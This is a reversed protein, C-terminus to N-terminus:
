VPSVSVTDPLNTLRTLLSKLPHYVTYPSEGFAPLLHSITALSGGPLTISIGAFETIGYLSVILANSGDTYWMCVCSLTALMPGPRPGPCVTTTVPLGITFGIGYVFTI